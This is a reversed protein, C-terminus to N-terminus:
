KFFDDWEPAVGGTDQLTSGPKNAPKDKGVLTDKVAGLYETVHQKIQDQTAHPFKAAFTTELAQRMPALAPNSLVPDEQLTGKIQHSQIMNPLEGRLAGLQSTVAHEVMKMTTHMNYSYVQRAMHNLSESFAEPDGSLAKTILEQPINSSFNLKSLQENFKGEDFNFIPKPGEAAIPKGDPGVPPKFLDKFKDLPNVQAQQAGQAGKDTAGPPQNNTSGQAGQGQAGQGQQPQNNQLQGGQNMEGSPGMTIAMGGM